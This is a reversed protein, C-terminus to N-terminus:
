ATMKTVLGGVFSTMSEEMYKQIIKQRKEAWETEDFRSPDDPVPTQQPTRPKSPAGSTPPGSGVRANAKGVTKEVLQTGVRQMGESADMKAPM